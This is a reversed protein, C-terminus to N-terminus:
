FPLAKGSELFMNEEAHTLNFFLHNSHPLPQDQLATEYVARTECETPVAIEIDLDRREFM